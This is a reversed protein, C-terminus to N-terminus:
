SRHKYVLGVQCKVSLSSVRSAIGFALHSVMLTSKTIFSKSNNSYSATMVTTSKIELLTCKIGVWVVIVASLV